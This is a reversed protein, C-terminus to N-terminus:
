QKTQRETEEPSGSRTIGLMRRLWGMEAVLLKQEEEKRLCLAVYMLVPIVFTEYILTKTRESMKDSKWMKNFQGIIASALGIRRTIDHSCQGDETVLGGLYVFETVQELEDSDLMIKLQQQYKGIIMTKSKAAYIKLGFRKSSIHVANTIDQLQQPNQPLLDVDYAFRLNNTIQGYLNVGGTTNRLTMQMMAELLLNFLYPSLNCGQRVGVTVKFWETLEGDVRVSSM